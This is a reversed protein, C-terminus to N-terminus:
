YYNNSEEFIKEGEENEIWLIKSVFISNMYGKRTDVVLFKWGKQPKKSLVQQLLFDFSENGIDKRYFVVNKKWGDVNATFSIYIDKENSGQIRWDGMIEFELDTM